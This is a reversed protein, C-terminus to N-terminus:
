WQRGFLQRISQLARWERSGLVQALYEAAEDLRGARELELAIRMPARGPPASVTLMAHGAGKWAGEIQYSATAAGWIFDHPFKYATM